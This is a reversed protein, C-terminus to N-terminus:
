KEERKLERDAYTVFEKPTPVGKKCAISEQITKESESRTPKKYAYEIATRMDRKVEQVSVGHEKAIKRYVRRM